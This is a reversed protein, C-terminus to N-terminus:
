VAQWMCTPVVGRRLGKASCHMHRLTLCRAFAGRFYWHHGWPVTCVQQRLHPRDAARMGGRVLGAPLDRSPHTPTPGVLSASPLRGMAAWARMRAGPVPRPWPLLALAVHARQSVLHFWYYRFVSQTDDPHDNVELMSRRNRHPPPHPPLACTLLCPTALTPYHQLLLPGRPPM